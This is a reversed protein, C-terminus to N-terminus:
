SYKSRSNLFIKAIADIWTQDINGADFDKTFDEKATNYFVGEVRKSPYMLTRHTETNRELQKQASKLEHINEFGARQLIALQDAERDGEEEYEYNRLDFVEDDIKELERLRDVAPNYYRQKYDKTSITADKGTEPERYTIFSGSDKTNAKAQSKARLQDREFRNNLQDLQTYRSPDIEIGSDIDSQIDNYLEDIDDNLGLNKGRTNLSRLNSDQRQADLALMSMFQSRMDEQRVDEKKELIIDKDAATKQGVAKEASRVTDKAKFINAASDGVVKFGGIQRGVEEFRRLREARERRKEPILTSAAGSFFDAM